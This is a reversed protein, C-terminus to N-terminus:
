PQTTALLEKLTAAPPALGFFFCKSCSHYDSSLNFDLSRCPTLPRWRSARRRSGEPHAASAGAPPSERQPLPAVTGQIGCSERALVAAAIGTVPVYGWVLHSLISFRQFV